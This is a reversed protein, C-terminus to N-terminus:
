ESIFCHTFLHVRILETATLWVVCASSLEAWVSLELDAVLCVSTPSADLIANNSAKRRCQVCKEKLIGDSEELEKKIKGHKTDTTWSPSKNKHKEHDFHIKKPNKSFTALSKKIIGILDCGLPGNWLTISRVVQQCDLWLEGLQNDELTSMRLPFSKLNKYLRQWKYGTFIM